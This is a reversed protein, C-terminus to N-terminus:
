DGADPETLYGAWTDAHSRIGIGSLVPKIATVNFPRNLQFRDPNQRIMEAMAERNKTHKM